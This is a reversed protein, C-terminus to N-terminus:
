EEVFKKLITMAVSAILAWISNLFEETAPISLVTFPENELIYKLEEIMDDSIKMLNKLIKKILSIDLSDSNVMKNKSKANFYGKKILDECLKKLSAVGQIYIENEPQFKNSLFYIEHLRLLDSLINKNNKLLMIHICYLKNIAVGKKLIILIVVLIFITQCLFVAVNIKSYTNFYDFVSLLFGIILIIAALLFIKLQYDVRTKQKKGYNRLVRHLIGWSKYTFPEFFDITPLYKKSYYQDVKRWSLLNSLQSLYQYVQDYEYITNILLLYNFYVFLFSGFFLSIIMYNEAKSEGFIEEFQTYRIFNPIIATVFSFVLSIINIKRRSLLNDKNKELLLGAVNFGSYVEGECHKVNKRLEEALVGIKTEKLKAVDIDVALSDEDRLINHYKQNIPVIFRFGFLGIDIDKRLITSQLEKEIDFRKAEVCMGILFEKTFERKTLQKNKFFDMKEANITAFKIAKICFYIILHLVLMYIEVAYIKKPLYQYYIVFCTVTILYQFTQQFFQLNFGWFHQNRSLASNKNIMFLILSLFPGLFFFFIIQYALFEFFYKVNFDTEHESIQSFHSLSRGKTRKSLDCKFYVNKPINNTGELNSIKEIRKKDNFASFFEASTLTRNTITESEQEIVEPIVEEIHPKIPSSIEQKKIKKFYKWSMKIM